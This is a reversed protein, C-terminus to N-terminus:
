FYVAIKGVAVLVYALVTVLLVAVTLSLILKM